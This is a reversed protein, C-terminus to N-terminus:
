NARATASRPLGELDRRNQSDHHEGVLPASQVGRLIPLDVVASHARKRDAIRRDGARDVDRRRATGVGSLALPRRSGIQTSGPGNLNDSPEHRIPYPSRGANGAPNVRSVWVALIGAGVAG